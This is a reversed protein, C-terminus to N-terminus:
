IKVPESEWLGHINCYSLAYLEGPVDLKATFTVDPEAYVGSSNAGNTSAGHADFTFRAVLYPFKGEDPKFYVEIFSIHHETTNPHPIEKGVSVRIRIKEGHELVEVVPVHKEKKFDNAQILDKLAM